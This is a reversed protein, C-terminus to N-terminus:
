SIRSFSELRPVVVTVHAIERFQQVISPEITMSQDLSRKDWFEKGHVQVYGTFTSVSTYIMYDYSGKQMSRMVVSFFVAFFVSSVAILTRRKNRWLNRWALQVYLKM